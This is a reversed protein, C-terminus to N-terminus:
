FFDTRERARWDVWCRKQATTFSNESESEGGDEVKWNMMAKMMAKM